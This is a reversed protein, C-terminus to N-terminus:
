RLMCSCILLCVWTRYSNRFSCFGLGQTSSCGASSISPSSLSPFSLVPVYQCESHLYYHPYLSTRPLNCWLYGHLRPLNNWVTGTRAMSGTVSIISGRKPWSSPLGIILTCIFNTSSIKFDWSLWSVPSSLSCHGSVPHFGECTHEAEWLIVAFSGVLDNQYRPNSVWIFLQM